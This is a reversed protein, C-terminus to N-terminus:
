TLILFYWCLYPLYYLITAFSLSEQVINMSAGLDAAYPVRIRHTFISDFSVCNQLPNQPRRRM